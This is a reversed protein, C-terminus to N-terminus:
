KYCKFLNFKLFIDSIKNAASSILVLMNVVDKDLLVPTKELIGLVIVLATRKPVTKWEPKSM